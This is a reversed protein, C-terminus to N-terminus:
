PELSFHRWTAKIRRAIRQSTIPVTQSFGGEEVHLIVGPAAIVGIHFNRPALPIEIVDGVKPKGLVKRWKKREEEAITRISDIDRIGFYLTRCDDLDLNFETKFFLRILGWCDCGDWGDGKERFKIGCYLSLDRM